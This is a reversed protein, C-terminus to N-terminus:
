MEKREGDLFVYELSSYESPYSLYHYLFPHNTVEILETTTRHSNSATLSIFRCRPNNVLFCYSDKWYLAVIDMGREIPKHRHIFKLSDDELVEFEFPFYSHAQYENGSIFWILRSNGKNIEGAIRLEITAAESVPIEKRVLKMLEAETKIDSDPIIHPLLLGLACLVTLIQILRIHEPKKM